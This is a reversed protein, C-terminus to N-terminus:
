EDANAQAAALVVHAEADDNLRLRYGGCVLSLWRGGTRTVTEHITRPWPDQVTRRVTVDDHGTFGELDLLSDVPALYACAPWDIPGVDAVLTLMDRLRAIDDLQAVAAPLANYLKAQGTDANAVIEEATTAPTLGSDAADQIVMLAADFRPKLESVVDGSLTKLAAVADHILAAIFQGEVRLADPNLQGAREAASQRVRRSVEQPECDLLGITPVADDAFAGIIAAHVEFVKAVRPGPDFGAAQLTAVLTEVENLGV